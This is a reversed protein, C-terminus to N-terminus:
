PTSRGSLQVNINFFGGSGLRQGIGRRTGGVEATRSSVWCTSHRDGPRRPAGTTCSFRASLSRLPGPSLAPNFVLSWPRSNWRPSLLIFLNTLKRRRAYYWVVARRVRVSWSCAKRVVGKPSPPKEVLFLSPLHFPNAFSHGSMASEESLRKKEHRKKEARRASGDGGEMKPFSITYDLSTSSDLVRCCAKVLAIGVAKTVVRLSPMCMYVCACMRLVYCTSTFLNMYNPM